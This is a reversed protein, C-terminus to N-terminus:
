INLYVKSDKLRLEPNLIITSKKYDKNSVKKNKNPDLNNSYKCKVKNCNYYDM